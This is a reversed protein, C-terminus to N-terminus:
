TSKNHMSRITKQLNRTWVERSKRAPRSRLPRKDMANVLAEEVVELETKKKSLEADLVSAEDTLQELLRVQRGVFGAQQERMRSVRSLETEVRTLATHLGSLARAARAAPVEEFPMENLHAAPPSSPSTMVVVEFREPVYTPGPSADLKKQMHPRQRHTGSPLLSSPLHYPTYRHMMIAILYIHQSLSSESPPIFPLKLWNHANGAEYYSSALMGVGHVRKENRTERRAGSEREADGALDLSNTVRYVTGLDSDVFPAFFQTGQRFRYRMRSNEYRVFNAEFWVLLNKKKLELLRRFVHRDGDHTGRWPLSLAESTDPIVNIDINRFRVGVLARADVDAGVLGFLVKYWLPLCPGTIDPRLCDLALASAISSDLGCGYGM